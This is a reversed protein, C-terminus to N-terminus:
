QFILSHEARVNRSVAVQGFREGLYGLPSKGDYSGGVSRRMSFGGCKARRSAATEKKNGEEGLLTAICNRLSESAFCCPLKQAAPTQASIQSGLTLADRLLAPRRTSRFQM